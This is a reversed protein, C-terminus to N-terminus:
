HGAMIRQNAEEVSMGMSVLQVVCQSIRAQAMKEIEKFGESEVDIKNKVDILTAMVGHAMAIAQLRQCEYNITLGALETHTRIVENASRLQSKLKKKLTKRAM